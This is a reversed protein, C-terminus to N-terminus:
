REDMWDKCATLVESLIPVCVDSGYGGNEVVAVFALPYDKDAVFGAFTANPKKDGGVQATGSKGCVTLGPFNDEGYITIVNNRMLETLIEATDASLLKGTTETKARYGVSLGSSVQDVVYPLAAEGGGGIVGMVTMFRCPNVLDTYQGIGSWAIEVAAAGDIDYTGEVTTIGDFSLSDTVQLKDVYKELTDGGIYEVLQAYYCNCSRALATKMSVTGHAKECTVKDVGFAYSAECTFELDLNDEDEELAAASTIVKFISGPTYTVQTFRNLYAGEYKGTTDGLIDPVNDPDYTPTSVACLIEGTEYNYVAVTGKRDGMTNLAVKQIQTSLTLRAEGGTGSYSYLGNILDYGAMEDSYYTVAPASISGSRDGVWHLTALRTAYDEAYERSDTADLILVGDQDTVVGCGINSGNYVHPNGPFVAWNGADLIYECVFILMGAVLILALILAITTRHAVRNM